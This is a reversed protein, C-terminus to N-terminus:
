DAVHQWKARQPVAFGVADAVCDTIRFNVAARMGNHNANEIFRGSHDFCMFLLAIKLLRSAVNRTKALRLTVNVRGSQYPELALSSPM